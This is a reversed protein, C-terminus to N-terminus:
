ILEVGVQTLAIIAKLRPSLWLPNTYRNFENERLETNDFLEVFHESLRPFYTRFYSQSVLSRPSVLEAM